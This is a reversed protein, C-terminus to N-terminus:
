GGDRLRRLLFKRANNLAHVNATATSMVFAKILEEGPPEFLFQVNAPDHRDLSLLSIGSAYLYSALDLDKTAFPQGNGM